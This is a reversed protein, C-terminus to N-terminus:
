SSCAQLDLDRGCRLHRIVYGLDPRELKVGYAFLARFFGINGDINCDRDPINRWVFEGAWSYQQQYEMGGMTGTPKPILIRLLDKHYIVTDEYLAVKYSTQVNWKKGRTANASSFPYVRVYNGGNVTWRPPFQVANFRFGQYVVGGLGIDQVLVGQMAGGGSSAARFDNRTNASLKKLDSFTYTSGVADYVPTGEPTRASPNVSGGNFGMDQHVEELVGFSLAATPPSAANFTTDIVAGDLRVTVKNASAAIVEGQYANSWV